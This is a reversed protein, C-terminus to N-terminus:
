RAEYLQKVEDNSLVKDYIRIEDIAGRYRNATMGGILLPDSNELTGVGSISVAPLATSNTYSQMTQQSRNVVYVVHGWSSRQIGSADVARNVGGGGIYFAPAVPNGETWHAIGYGTGSYGNGKGLSWYPNITGAPFKYWLSISFSQSANFDLVNSDAVSIVASGNFDYASNANGKRDTTLTAGTVTGNNGYVSSDNANGDLSWHGVPCPGPQTQGSRINTAYYSGGTNEATLCYNSGYTAYEYTTGSSKKFDDVNAPYSGTDTKILELQTASSRVDSMVASQRARDQIGNYAVVTIAALIGVVVIVILLEVITFGSHSKFQNYTIM